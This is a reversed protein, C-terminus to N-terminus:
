AQYVTPKMVAYFLAITAANQISHTSVPSIHLDSAPDVHPMVPNLMKKLGKSPSGSALVSCLPNQLVCVCVLVALLKLGTM